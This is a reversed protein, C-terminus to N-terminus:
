TQPNAKFYIMMRYLSIGVSIRHVEIDPSRNYKQMKRMHCSALFLLLGLVGYPDIDKPLEAM